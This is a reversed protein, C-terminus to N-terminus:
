VQRYTVPTRPLSRLLGPRKPKGACAALSQDLGEGGPPAVPDGTDQRLRAPSVQREGKVPTVPPPSDEAAGPHNAKLKLVYSEDLGNGGASALSQYVALM